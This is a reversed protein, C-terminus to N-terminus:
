MLFFLRSAVRTLKNETANNTGDNLAATVGQAAWTGHRHGDRRLM